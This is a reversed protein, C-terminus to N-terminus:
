EPPIDTQKMRDHDQPPTCASPLYPVSFQIRQTTQQTSKNNTEGGAVICSLVSIKAEGQKGKQEEIVVSVDFTINEEHYISKGKTNEKTFVKAPAVPMNGHKSQDLKALGVGECIQNITDRIFDKLEM